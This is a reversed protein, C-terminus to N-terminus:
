LRTWSSLIKIKLNKLLNEDINAKESDLSVKPVTLTLASYCDLGLVILPPDRHLSAEDKTM